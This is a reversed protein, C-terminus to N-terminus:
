PHREDPGYKSSEDKIEVFVVYFLGQNDAQQYETMPNQVKDDPVIKGDKKIRRLM